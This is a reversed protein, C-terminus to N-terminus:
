GTISELRRLLAQLMERRLEKRALEDEAAAGLAQTEDFRYERRRELASRPAMVKGEADLVEFEVRHVVQYEQIRAAGSYSLPVTAQQDALIRLVSVKAEESDVLQVGQRLLARGLEQPLPSLSDVSEIRLTQLAAPLTVSDRLHFGCGAMFLLSVCLLMSLVKSVASGAPM